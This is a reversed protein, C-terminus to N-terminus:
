LGVSTCTNKKCYRIDKINRNKKLNVTLVITDINNHPESVTYNMYEDNFFSLIQM